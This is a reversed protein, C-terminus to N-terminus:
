KGPTDTVAGFGPLELPESEFDIPRAAAKEQEARLDIMCGNGGLEYDCEGESTGIPMGCDCASNAAKVPPTPTAKKAKKGKKKAGAGAGKNPRAAPAEYMDMCDMASYFERVADNALREAIADTQMMLRARAKTHAKTQAEDIMSQREDAARAKQEELQEAKQEEISFYQFAFLALFNAAAAVTVLILGGKGITELANTSFAVLTTNLLVQIVSVLTSAIITGISLLKAIGRQMSSLGEKKRALYWAIAAVDFFLLMILAGFVGGSHEWGFQATLAANVLITSVIFSNFVIGMM